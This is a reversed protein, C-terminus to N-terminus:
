IDRQVISMHVCPEAALLAVRVSSSTGGSAAASMSGSPAATDTAVVVGPWFAASWNSASGPSRTLTCTADSQQLALTEITAGSPEGTPLWTEIFELPPKM